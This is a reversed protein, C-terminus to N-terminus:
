PTWGLDATRLAGGCDPGFALLVSPFAARAQLGDDRVFHLRDRLFTVVSAIPAVHQFARTETRAPMLLVGDGHTAMRHAFAPLMAGYPPNCWVRGSWPAVLGNERATLFRVAPVWPVPGAMPSCVDLDFGLGLADFLSRPTYWESTAGVPAEHLSM